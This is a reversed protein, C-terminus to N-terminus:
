AFSKTLFLRLNKSFCLSFFMVSPAKTAVSSSKSFAILSALACPCAPLSRLAILLRVNALYIVPFLLATFKASAALYAYKALILSAPPALGEV